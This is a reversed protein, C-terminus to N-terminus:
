YGIRPDLLVYIIDLTFNVIIYIIAALLTVGMIAPFDLNLM